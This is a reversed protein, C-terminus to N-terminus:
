LGREEMVRNKEKEYEQESIEGSLRKEKLERLAKKTKDGHGDDNPPASSINDLRKKTNAVQRLLEAESKIESLTLKLPANGYWHAFDPNQHFVGKFSIPAYFQKMRFFLSEVGSLNEYLMHPGIVFKEGFLPHLPRKGPAPFLLGDKQLGEVIGKAEEVLAGSQREIADADELNRRALNSTHCASCISIMEERERKKISDGAEPLGSAIGRSVNHSGGRMHCTVCSPAIDKGGNRFIVGHVSKEWMEVQPHDPGMHCVGCTDPERALALDTGHKTHCTDCRVEVMHCANCGQRQMEPSQALFMACETKVITEDSGPKHCFLCSKDAGAATEINRTCGRGSRLGISHRSLSHGSLASQHCEGCKGADVTTRRNHNAEVDAGHCGTCTVEKEFHRSKKWYNVIGPTKKEHCDICPDSAAAPGACICAFFLVLVSIFTQMM